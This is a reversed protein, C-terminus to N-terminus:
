ELTFKIGFIRTPIANNDRASSSLADVSASYGRGFVVSNITAGQIDRWYFRDGSVAGLMRRVTSIPIICASRTDDSYNTRVEVIYADYGSGDVTVSQSGFYSTPSANTWLLVPDSQVNVNATAYEAVDYIGNATIPIEGEAKKGGLTIPNGIIM